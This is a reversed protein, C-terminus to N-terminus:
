QRRRSPSARHIDLHVSVTLFSFSFIVKESGRVNIIPFPVFIGDVDFVLFKFDEPNFDTDLSVNLEGKIGHTKAVYGIPYIQKATIM